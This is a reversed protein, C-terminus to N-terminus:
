NDLTQQIPNFEIGREEILFNEFEQFVPSQTQNLRTCAPQGEYAESLDYIATRRSLERTNLVRAVVRPPPTQPFLWATYSVDVVKYSPGKRTAMRRNM